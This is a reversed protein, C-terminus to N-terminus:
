VIMWMSGGESKNKQMLITRSVIGSASYIEQEVYMTGIQLNFRLGLLYELVVVCGDNELPLNFPVFSGHARITAM